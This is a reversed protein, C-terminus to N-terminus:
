QNDLLKKIEPDMELKEGTWARKNAPLLPDEVGVTYGLRLKEAASLADTPKKPIGTPGRDGEFETTM